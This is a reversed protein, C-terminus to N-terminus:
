TLIPLITEQATPSRLFNIKLSVIDLLLEIQIFFQVLDNANSLKCVQYIIIVRHQKMCAVHVNKNWYLFFEVVNM